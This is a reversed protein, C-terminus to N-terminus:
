ALIYRLAGNGYPDLLPIPPPHDVNLHSLMPDGHPLPPSSECKRQTSADIIEELPPNEKRPHEHFRNSIEYLAKRVLSPAGSIQFLYLM